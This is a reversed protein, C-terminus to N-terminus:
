SQMNDLMELKYLENVERNEIKKGEYSQKDEVLFRILPVIEVAVYPIEWPLFCYYRNALGDEGLASPVGCLLWTLDRHM